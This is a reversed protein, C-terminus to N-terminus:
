SLVRSLQACAKLAKDTSGRTLFEEIRRLAEGACLFDFALSPEYARRRIEFYLVAQDTAGYSYKYAENGHGFDYCILGQGIAWEISHVHLLQGIGKDEAQPDRGGAIFHVVGNRRDVVHGLAGLPREGKWLVPLYAAGIEQAARLVDRYNGAVREATEAGKQDRWRRQWLDLLVELAADFDADGATTIHLAGSDLHDRKLRNYKQRRNASLQGALFSDFDEPLDVQPCVLNDTKNGNIRYSKYKVGFGRAEFADTFLRCRRNQAVYRMSFRMWPMAALHDTVAQLAEAEREPHCLFGTYESWLLRGGAELETHFEDRSRSWHTRYKLPLICLATGPRDPAEAVLVSWRYPNARFARAMWDWTLFITAEPDRAELAQWAPRLADLGAVTDVIRVTLATRIDQSQLTM